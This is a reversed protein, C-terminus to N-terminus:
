YTGFGFAIVITDNTSELIPLRDPCVDRMPVPICSSGELFRVYCEKQCYSLFYEHYFSFFVICIHQHINISHPSQHVTYNKTLVSSLPDPIGLGIFSLLDRSKSQVNTFPILSSVSPKRLSWVSPKRLSRNTYSLAFTM